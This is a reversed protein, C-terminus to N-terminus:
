PTKRNRKRTLTLLMGDPQPDFRVDDMLSRLCILGLGGPELPDKKPPPLPPVKGIGWDCITLRLIDDAFDADIDMRGGPQNGYAHRVINAMAENIVLGVEGVAKADFGVRQCFAEVGRRVTALESTDSPV